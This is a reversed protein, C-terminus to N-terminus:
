YLLTISWHHNVYRSVWGPKQYNLWFLSNQSNQLRRFQEVIWYLRSVDVEVPRVDHFDGWFVDFRSRMWLLCMTPALSPWRGGWSRQALAAKERKGNWEIWNMLRTMLSLNTNWGSMFPRSGADICCGFSGNCARLLNFIQYLSVNRAGEAKWRENGKWKDRCFRIRENGDCRM